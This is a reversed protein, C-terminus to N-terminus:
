YNFSRVGPIQFAPAPTKAAAAAQLARAVTSKATPPPLVDVDGGGSAEWEQLREILVAKKGTVPLGRAKLM